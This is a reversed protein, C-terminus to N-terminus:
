EFVIYKTTITTTEDGNDTEYVVEGTVMDVSTVKQSSGSLLKDTMRKTSIAHYQNLLDATILDM